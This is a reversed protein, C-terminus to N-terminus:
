FTKEAEYAVKMDEHSDNYDQMQEHTQWQKEVEIEHNKQKQCDLYEKGEKKQEKMYYITQKVYPKQWQKSQQWPVKRKHELM